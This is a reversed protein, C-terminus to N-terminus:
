WDRGGAPENRGDGALAQFLVGPTDGRVADRYRKLTLARLPDRSTTELMPDGAGGGPRLAGAAPKAGALRRAPSKQLEGLVADTKAVGGQGMSDATTQQSGQGNTQAPRDEEDRGEKKQEPPRTAGEEGPRALLHRLSSRLTTWDAQRPNMKEGFDVARLADRVAGDPVAQGRALTELGYSITREALLGLDRADVTRHQTLDEVLWQLKDLSTAEAAFAHGEDHARATRVWLLILLATATAGAATPGGARVAARVITRLRPRVPIEQWLGFLGLALAPVLFWPFQEARAETQRKTWRTKRGLEVSDALLRPVDLTANAERYIGAGAAIAQLTAPELRSRAPSKEGENAPPVDGGQPTGIGLAVVTVERRQLHALPERWGETTSEGDSLVFLTRDSTADDSYAERVARLMGAYDSGGQPLYGPELVPLFERIIQYDSSLPVQVYATGAFVVLAVREGHLSDLLSRVIAHARRLRSPAVDDVLMSRSLDLAIVVERAPEEGVKENNGWRPQALAVVAFALAIPLVRIRRKTEEATPEIRSGAVSVRPVGGGARRAEMRRFGLLAALPLVLAWLFEAHGWSM